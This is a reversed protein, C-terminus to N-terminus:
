PLLAGLALEIEVKAGASVTAARTVGLVSADSMRPGIHERRGDGDTDDYDVVILEYQGAPLYSLRFNGAASVNASTTAGLYGSAAEAEVDLSGRPYAYAIRVGDFAGLSAQNTIRGELSGTLQREVLRLSNTLRQVSVFSPGRESYDIAKRLDLDVVLETIRNAKVEFLGEVEVTVYREGFGLGNQTGDETELYCGPQQGREDFETDFTLALRNYLGADVLQDNGFQVTRGQTYNSIDISKRTSLQELVQGELAIETLTVYAVETDPDDIPADTLEVRIRGQERDDDRKAATGDRDCGALPLALISALALAVNLPASRSTM